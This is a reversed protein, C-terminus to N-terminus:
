GWWFLSSGEEGAHNWTKNKKFFNKETTGKKFTINPKKVALGERTRPL